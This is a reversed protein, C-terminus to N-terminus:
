ILTCNKTSKMGFIAIKRWLFVDFFNDFNTLVYGTLSTYILKPNIESLKEYGIGLEDAKGPAFNEIVVDCQKALDYIM